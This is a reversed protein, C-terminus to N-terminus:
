EAAEQVAAQAWPMGYAEIMAAIQRDNGGDRNHQSWLGDKGTPLDRIPDGDIVRFTSGARLGMWYWWIDDNMPCLQQAKAMDMVEAALAPNRDSFAGPPVLMGHCSTPFHWIGETNPPLLPWDNYPIPLAVGALAGVGRARRLLIEKAHPGRFAEAFSRVWTRPYVLDDDATLVFAGPYHELAPILKKYSRLDECQRITLGDLRLIDSPLSAFEHRALWLVVADPRMDQDLLSDLAQRLMPFRPPHSTLSVILQGPLSHRGPMAPVPREIATPTAVAWRKSGGARLDIAHGAQRLMEMLPGCTEVDDVVLTAARIRERLAWLCTQRQASHYPGDVLVLGFADPLDAQGYAVQDIGPGIPVLPAYHLVVNKISFRELVAATQRWSPLVDELVHAIQGTGQLAMGLILTSLGSGMELVPATAKRARDHLEWLAEAELTWPNDLASRGSHIDWGYFLAAFTEPEAKGSKLGEIADVFTQPFVRQERRLHNGFHGIWVKSGAHSFKMDPDAFVHFGAARAKLCLVYDGSQYDNGPHVDEPIGMERPWGREVIRAVPNQPHKREDDPNPWWARPTGIKRLGGAREIETLKELVPRRIRMFGTAVKPMEFLSAENLGLGEFQGAVFPYTEVDNKHRYVGAVIDGPAMLLDIISKADWGMDADLFFLDTYRYRCHPSDSPPREWTLFDRIIGNRVDDVHCSGQVMLFDFQVGARSLTEVTGAMSKSHNCEPHDTAPTALLVYYPSPAVPAAGVYVYYGNSM